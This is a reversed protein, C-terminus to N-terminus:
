FVLNYIKIHGVTNVRVGKSSVTGSGRIHLSHWQLDGWDISNWAVSAHLPKFSILSTCQIVLSDLASFYFSVYRIVDLTKVKLFYTIVATSTSNATCCFELVKLVSPVILVNGLKYNFNVNM